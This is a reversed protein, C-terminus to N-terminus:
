MSTTLNHRPRLAWRRGAEFAGLFVIVIPPFLVLRPVTWPTLLVLAVGVCLVVHTTLRAVRPARPAWRDFLADLAARLVGAALGFGAGWILVTLTGNVSFLHPRGEWLTVGRMALRGGSGLVLAGLAAGLGLSVSLDAPRM